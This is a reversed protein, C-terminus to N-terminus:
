EAWSRPSVTPNEPHASDHSRGYVTGVLDQLGVLATRGEVPLIGGMQYIADYQEATLSGNSGLNLTGDDNIVTSMDTTSHARVSMLEEPTYIGAQLLTLTALTQNSVLGDTYADASNQRAEEESDALAETISTRTTGVATSRAFGVLTKIVTGGESALPVASALNAALDIYSRVEADAEAGIQESTRSIAGTVFGDVSAQDKVADALLGYDEGNQAATGAEQTRYYNFVIQSATFLTLADDNQGVQGILNSLALDSFLPQESHGAVSDSEGPSLTLTGPNGAQASVQVGLPYRALTEAVLNRATDSLTLQEGSEGLANLIGSVTTARSTGGSDFSDQTDTGISTPLMPSESVAEAIAAWDDTWRNDGVPANDMMEQIRSLTSNAGTEATVPGPPTPALWQQAADPNATMAHVLGDLPNSDDGVSRHGGDAAPPTIGSPMQELNTGMQVLFADNFDLGSGADETSDQGDLDVDRSAGLMTNLASMRAPDVSGTAWDEGPNDQISRALTDAAERATEDDWTTSAAALMHGLTDALARGHGSEEYDTHPVIGGGPRGTPELAVEVDIPIQTLNELGVHEIFAAGYAPIDQHRSMEAIIEEVSRGHEDTGNEIAEELNIAAQEGDSAAGSNYAVVNEATDAYGDPLYYSISGDSGMPTIGSDNMAKAEDLRTQLDSAITALDGARQYITSSEGSSVLPDIDLPYCNIWLSSYVQSRADDHSASRDNLTDIVSQLSDPYLRVFTM